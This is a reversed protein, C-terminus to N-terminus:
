QGTMSALVASLADGGNMNKERMLRMMAIQAQAVMKPDVIGRDALSNRLNAYAQPQTWDGKATTNSGKAASGVTKLLNNLLEVQQEPSARKFIDSQTMRGYTNSIIQELPTPAHSIRAASVAANASLESGRVRAWNDGTGAVISQLEKPLHSVQGYTLGTGPIVTQAAQQMVDRTNAAVQNEWGRWPRNPDYEIRSQDFGRIIDLPSSSREDAPNNWTGAQDGLAAMRKQEPSGEYGAEISKNFAIVDPNTVDGIYAKNFGLQQAMRQQYAWKGDYYDPADPAPVGTMDPTPPTSSTPASAGRGAAARTAAGSASKAFNVMQAHAYDANAPFALDGASNSNGAGPVLSPTSVTAAPVSVPKSGYSFLPGPSPLPTADGTIMTKAAGAVPRLTAETARWPLNLADGMISGSGRLYMGAAAPAGGKDYAASIDQGISSAVKGLSTNQLGFMKYLDDLNAM